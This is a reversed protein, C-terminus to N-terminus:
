GQQFNGPGTVPAMVDPMSLHAPPPLPVAFRGLKLKESTEEQRKDIATVVLYAFVAAIIFLVSAIISIITATNEPVSENFSLRMSINGAFSALLWFLWWLPFSAPPSPEAFLAEDPLGSKQWVERVGRYPAVLNVFPIFFSGVAFGPSYDLRRGAGFARLNAYARYLWVLFFVVTALYVVVDVLAFLFSVIMIVGGMPNEGFEQDETLPPFVLSLSETILSMGTVVAGVILLIKVIGARTHASTFPAPYPSPNMTKGSPLGTQTVRATSAFSYCFAQALLLKKFKPPAEPLFQIFVGLAQPTDM